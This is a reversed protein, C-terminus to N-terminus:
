MSKDLLRGFSILYYVVPSSAAPFGPPSFAPLGPHPYAQFGPLM